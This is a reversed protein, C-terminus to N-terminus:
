IIFCNALENRKTHLIFLQSDLELGSELYDTVEIYCCMQIIHMIVVKVPYSCKLQVGRKLSINLQIGTKGKLRGMCLSVYM